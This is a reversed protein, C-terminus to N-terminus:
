TDQPSVTPKAICEGNEGALFNVLKNHLRLAKPNRCRCSRSGDEFLAAEPPLLKMPYRTLNDFAENRSQKADLTKSM